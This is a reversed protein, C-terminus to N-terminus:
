MNVYALYLLYGFAGTLLGLLATGGAISLSTLSMVYALVQSGAGIATSIGAITVFTGMLTLAGTKWINDTLLELM